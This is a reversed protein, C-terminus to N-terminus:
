NPIAKLISVSIKFKPLSFEDNLFENIAKRGDDHIIADIKRAFLLCNCSYETRSILGKSYFHKNKQILEVIRDFDKKM